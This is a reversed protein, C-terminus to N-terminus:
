LWAITDFGHNTKLLVSIDFIFKRDEFNILVILINEFCSWCLHFESRFHIAATVVKKMVFIPWFCTTRAVMCHLCTFSFNMQIEQSCNLSAYLCTCIVSRQYIWFYHLRVYTQKSLLSLRLKKSRTSFLDQLNM